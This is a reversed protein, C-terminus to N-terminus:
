QMAPLDDSREKTERPLDGVYSWFKTSNFLTAPRLYKGGYFISDKDKSENVKSIIVLAALRKPNPYQKAAERLRSDILKLNSAVPEFSKGAKENLFSLVRRADARGNTQIQKQKKDAEAEAELPAVQAGDTSLKHEPQVGSASPKAAVRKRGRKKCVSVLGADLLGSLGDEVVEQSFATRKVIFEVSNPISNDYEAAVLLLGFFLQKSTDPLCAFPHSLLLDRYVKVWPPPGATRKYTQFKSYNRVKLHDQKTM